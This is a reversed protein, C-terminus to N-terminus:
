KGPVTPTDRSAAWEDIERPDFRLRGNATVIVKLEGRDVARRLLWDTTGARAAAQHPQLLDLGRGVGNIWADADAREILHTRKNVTHPISGTKLARKVQEHSLGYILRFDQM